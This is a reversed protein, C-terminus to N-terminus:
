RCIFGEFRKELAVLLSCMCIDSSRTRRRSIAGAVRVLEQKVMEIIQKERGGQEQMIREPCLLGKPGDALRLRRLLGCHQWDALTVQWRGSSTCWM